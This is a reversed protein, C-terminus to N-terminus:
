IVTITIDSERFFIYEPSYELLEQQSLSELDFNFFISCKPNVVNCHSVGTVGQVVSVIESIYLSVNTGFRDSFGDIIATKVADILETDSGFYTDARFVQLEIQLPIEFEPIPIILTLPSEAM